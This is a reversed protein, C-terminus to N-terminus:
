KIKELKDDNIKIKNGSYEDYQEKTMYRFQGNEYILYTTDNVWNDDYLEIADGNKLTGNSQSAKLLNYADKFQKKFTKTGNRLNGDKDYSQFQSDALDDISYTKKSTDTKSAINMGADIMSKYYAQRNSDLTDWKETYNGDEDLYGYNQMYKNFLEMDGQSLADQIYTTFEADIQDQKAQYRTMANATTNLEATNYDSLNKSYLNMANNNVGAHASTGYGSTALGQQALSNNLYKQTNLKMNYLQIANNYYTKYNQDREAKALADDYVDKEEDKDPNSYLTRAYNDM